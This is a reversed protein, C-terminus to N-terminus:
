SITAVVHGYREIKEVRAGDPQFVQYGFQRLKQLLSDSTVGLVSWAYPHVEIVITKPRRRSDKLLSQAGQLVRQEHGEVDILLLDWAEDGVVSDLTKLCIQVRGKDSVHSEVGASIFSGERNRDSMGFPLVKVVSGLGNLALNKRLIALNEPDPEAALVNGSPKVRLGFAMAYLGWHAGVDIVRFGPKARSMLLSWVAPEYIESIDRCQPLVRITDTGNIHRVLGRRGALNLVGNYAPRVVNWLPALGKLPASHRLGTCLREFQYVVSM